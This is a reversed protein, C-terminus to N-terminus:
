VSGGNSRHSRMMEAFVQTAQEQLGPVVHSYIDLTVSIVSHGLREQVVKPNIGAVLLQTAHFHRLDHLRIPGAGVKTCLRRWANTLNFPDLVQGLPGTLVYGHDQFADGLEVRNVLQEGRHARLVEVTDQDISISRRSKATKPSAMLVGQGKARFAARNVSIMGRDLDVDNWMLGCVEGRRMGTYALLIYKHFWRVRPDDKCAVTRALAQWVCAPVMHTLFGPWDRRQLQRVRGEMAMSM